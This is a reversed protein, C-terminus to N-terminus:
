SCTILHSSDLQLHAKYSFFHAFITSFRNRPHVKVKTCSLLAPVLLSANFHEPLFSKTCVKCGRMWWALVPGLQSRLWAMSAPRQRCGTMGPDGPLTFSYYVVHLLVQVALISRWSHPALTYPVFLLAVYIHVHMYMCTLLAMRCICVSQEAPMDGLKFEFVCRYMASSTM